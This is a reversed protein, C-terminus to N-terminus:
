VREVDEEKTLDAPVFTVDGGAASIGNVAMTGLEREREVAFVRMRRGVALDRTIAEGCGGPRIGTVVAIEKPDPVAAPYPAPGLPDYDVFYPEGNQDLYTRRVHDGIPFRGSDIKTTESIQM